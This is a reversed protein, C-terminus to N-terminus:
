HPTRRRTRAAVLPFLSALLLLGTAPEPIAQVIATYNSYIATDYSGEPVPNSGTILTSGDYYGRADYLAYNAPSGNATLSVDDVLSNIGALEWAHTVANQIFIAGGSDGSSMMGENDGASQDFTSYIFNGGFGSPAGTVPGAYAVNNTGWSEIGDNDGWAWGGTVASGRVTGRGIMVMSAGTAPASQELPAYYTFSDTDSPQIEWIALDTSAIRAYFQVNYTTGNATNNNFIFSGTGGSGVHNATVFFRSSIPTGLYSGFKGEYSGVGDPPTTTNNGQSGIVIVAHAASCLGFVAALCLSACFYWRRSQPSGASLM